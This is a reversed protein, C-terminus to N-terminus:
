TYKYCCGASCLVRPDISEVTAEEMGWWVHPVISAMLFSCDEFIKMGRSEVLDGRFSVVGALKLHTGDGGQHRCQFLPPPLIWCSCSMGQPYLWGMEKRFCSELKSDEHQTTMCCSGKGLPFFRSNKPLYVTVTYINKELTLNWPACFDALLSWHGTPRHHKTNVHFHHLRNTVFLLWQTLIDPFLISYFKYGRRYENCRYTDDKGIMTRYQDLFFVPQFIRYYFSGLSTEKVGNALSSWRHLPHYSYVCWQM